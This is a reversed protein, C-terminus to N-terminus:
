NKKVFLSVFHSLSPSATRYSLRLLCMWWTCRPAEDANAMVGGPREAVRPGTLKPEQQQAGTREKGGTQTGLSSTPDQDEKSAVGALDSVLCYAAQHSILDRKSRSLQLHLAM